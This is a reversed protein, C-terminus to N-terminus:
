GQNEGGVYLTGKKLVNGNPTIEVSDQYEEFIEERWDSCYDCNKCIERKLYGVTVIEKAALLRRLWHLDPSGHKAKTQLPERVVTFKYEGCRPCEDFPKRIDGVYGELAGYQPEWTYDAESEQSQDKV